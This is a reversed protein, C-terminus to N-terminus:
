LGSRRRKDTHQVRVLWILIGTFGLSAKLTGPSNLCKSEIEVRLKGLRPGIARNHRLNNHEVGSM